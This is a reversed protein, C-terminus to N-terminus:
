RSAIRSDFHAFFQVNGAGVTKALSPFNIKLCGVKGPRLPGSRAHRCLRHSLAKKRCATVAVRHCKGLSQTQQLLRADQSRAPAGQQRRALSLTQSLPIREKHYTRREGRVQGVPVRGLQSGAYKVIASANKFRRVDGIEAVIQAGTTHSVGPITLVLPEVRELLVRVEAEVKEITANSFSWRPSWPRLRSRRPGRARDARGGVINAAARSSPPRTQEWAGERRLLFRRPLRKRMHAPSRQLTHTQLRSGRALRGRVHKLVARRVRSFCADMVCICQTKVTALEQKLSQQYRTLM